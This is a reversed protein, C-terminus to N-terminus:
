SEPKLLDPPATAAPEKGLDEDGSILVKEKIACFDGMCTSGLSFPYAACIRRSPSLAAFELLTRAADM